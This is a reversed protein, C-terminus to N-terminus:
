SVNVILRAGSPGTLHLVLLNAFLNGLLAKRRALADAKPRRAHKGTAQRAAREAYDREALAAMAEDVCASLARGEATAWPDHWIDHKHVDDALKPRRRWIFDRSAEM